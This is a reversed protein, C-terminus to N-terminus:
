NITIGYGFLVKKVAKFLKMHIKDDRHVGHEAFELRGASTDRILEAIVTATADTTDRGIQAQKKHWFVLEVLIQTPIWHEYFTPKGVPKGLYAKIKNQNNIIAQLLRRNGDIVRLKEEKRVVFIPYNDRPVTEAAKERMVKITQELLKKNEPRLLQEKISAASEANKLHSVTAFKGGFWLDEVSLDKEAWKINLSTILPILSKSSFGMSIGHIGNWFAIMGLKEQWKEIQKDISQWLSADRLKPLLKRMEKQAFQMAIKRRLPEDFHPPFKQNTTTKM